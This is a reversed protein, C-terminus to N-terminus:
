QEDELDDMDDDTLDDSDDSLLNKARPPHKAQEAEIEAKLREMSVTAAAANGYGKFVVFVADPIEDNDKHQFAKIANDDVSRLFAEFLMFHFRNPDETRLRSLLNRFTNEDAEQM